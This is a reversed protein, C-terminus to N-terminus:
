MWYTKRGAPLKCKVWTKNDILSLYEKGTAANWEKAEKTEMAEQYSTPENYYSTMFCYEAECDVVSHSFEEMQNTDTIMVGPDARANRKNNRPESFLAHKRDAMLARVEKPLVTTSDSDHSDANSATM